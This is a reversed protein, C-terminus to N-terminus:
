RSQCKRSLRLPNRRLLCTQLRRGACASARESARAPSPPESRATVAARHCATPMSQYRGSSSHTLVSSKKESSTAGCCCSASSLAPAGTSRTILVTGMGSPASCLWFHTTRGGRARMRLSGRTTVARKGERRPTGRRWPPHTPCRSPATATGLPRAPPGPTGPRAPFSTREGNHTGGRTSRPRCRADPSRRLCSCPPRLPAPWAQQRRVPPQPPLQEAKRATLPPRPGEPLCAM